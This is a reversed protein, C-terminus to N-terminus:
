NPFAARRLISVQRQLRSDMKVLPRIEDDIRAKLAAWLLVEAVADDTLSGAQCAGCGHEWQGLAM